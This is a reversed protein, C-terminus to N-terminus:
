KDNRERFGRVESMAGHVRSLHPHSPCLQRKLVGPEGKGEAGAGQGPPVSCPAILDWAMRSVRCAGAVGAPPALAVCGERCACRSPLTRSSPIGCCSTQTRQSPKRWPRRESRPSPSSCKSLVLCGAERNWCACRSRRGHWARLPIRFRNTAAHRVTVWRQQPTM